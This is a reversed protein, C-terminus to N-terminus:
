SIFYVLSAVAAGVVCLATRKAYRLASYHRPRTRRDHEQIVLGAADYAVHDEAGILAVADDVEASIGSVSRLACITGRHRLIDRVVEPRQELMTALGLAGTLMPRRTVSTAVDPARVPRRYKTESPLNLFCACPQFM